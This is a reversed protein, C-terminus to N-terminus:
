FGTIRVVSGSPGFVGTTAYVTGDRAVEVAGPSPLAVTGVVEGSVVRSLQGAFLEAVYVTGDRAVALDVAGTFGSAVLEVSGSRRDVRFVSGSGPAEPFGPLSSVYYDGRPGVEVDTPVPESLYTSGVCEVLSDLPLQQEPPTGDNFQALIGARVGETFEVPIPPLVAVTSTRGNRRVEVISNGAADAVIMSGRDLVVAYPNSEIIGPYPGVDFLFAGATELCVPASGADFGYLQEGDPNNAVEHDLLSAVQELDGSRTVRSVFTPGQEEPAEPPQSETVVLDGRGRADVGAVGGAAVVSVDGKRTVKSLRGGFTEAVYLTGDDGVALGLPGIFGSAIETVQPTAPTPKKSGKAQAPAGLALLPVVTLAVVTAVTRRM